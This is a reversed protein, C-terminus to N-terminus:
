AAQRMHARRTQWRANFRDLRLHLVAEAGLRSWRTSKRKFRLDILDKCAGEVVGSGIPWGAQRFQPYRMRSQHTELYDACKRLTEDRDRGRSVLERLEEQIGEGYGQRLAEEWRSGLAQTSESGEGYVVKAAEWLHESAHYFDLIEVARPFLHNALTWVANAGDGVVAVQEATPAGRAIAEAWLPEAFEEVSAWQAVYSKAEPQKGHWEALVGVKVEKWGEELHATTGDLAVLMRGEIRQQYPVPELKAEGWRAVIAQAGAVSLEVGLLKRLGALAQRYPLGAVEHAVAEELHTSFAGRWGLFRDAPIQHTGCRPCRLYRRRVRVPGLLTLCTRPQHSHVHQCGGCGCARQAQGEVEELRAQLAMELMRRGLKRSWDLVLQEAEEGDPASRLREWLGRAEQAALEELRESGVRIQAIM